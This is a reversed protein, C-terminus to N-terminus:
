PFIASTDSQSLRQNTMLAHPPVVMEFGFFAFLKEATALSIGGGRTFRFLTPQSVGSAHGIKNLSYGCSNIAARLSDSPTM